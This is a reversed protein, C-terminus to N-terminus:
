GESDRVSLTSNLSPAASHNLAAAQEAKQDQTIPTAPKMTPAERILAQAAAM